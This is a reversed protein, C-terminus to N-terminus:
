LLISQLHPDLLLTGSKCAHLGSNWGWGVCLVTLSCTYECGSTRPLPSDRLPCNWSVILLASHSKWVKLFARLFFSASWL